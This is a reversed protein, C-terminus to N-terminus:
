EGRAVYSKRARIIVDPRKVRVELQHVRGDLEPAVFALLYQSHLEYAVREFTAALDDTSRLEFYGGGAEDALERLDPDPRNERCSTTSTGWPGPTPLRPPLGRGPQPPPGPLPFQPGPYRPPRPGGIPGGPGIQFWTRGPKGGERTRPGGPCEEFLGIAYVMPEEFRARTLIDRFTVESDISPTDRGDTFVLVVRRGEEGALADFARATASWLPTGGAPLLREDLIRRMEAPDDTFTEPDIRIRDAFSGIRARDGPLLNAVFAKAADRILGFHPRVSASRDLMVVVTIPRLGNDFVTVPQRRGNDFVEFDDRQLDTVVRGHRDLVTADISVTPTIARFQPQQAGGLVGVALGLIASLAFFARTM